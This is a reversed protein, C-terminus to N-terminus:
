TRNPPLGAVRLYGDVMASLSFIAAQRRNQQRLETMSTDSYRELGNIAEVWQSVVFPRRLVTPGGIERVIPLDSGVVPVGQSLAEVLVRGFGEYESPFLLIDLARYFRTVDQGHLSGLFHVRDSIGLHEAEARLRAEDPGDGALFLTANPHAAAVRLAFSVNKQSHLRGLTGLVTRDNPMDFYARCETPNDEADVLPPTANHVVRLKERYRAPYHDFSDAVTQSVAINAAYLSTGGVLREVYAMKASQKDSPNRQTAIMKCTRVRRAAFAGLINAAPQFGFIVRPRRSIIQETWNRYFEQWEHIKRPSTEHLIFYSDTGHRAEPEKEIMFGLDTRYGRREFESALLGANLTAGGIGHRNSLCIIDLDNSRHIRM